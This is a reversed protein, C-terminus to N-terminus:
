VLWRVVRGVGWAVLGAVGLVGMGVGVNFCASVRRAAGRRAMTRALERRRWGRDRAPRFNGARIQSDSQRNGRDLPYNVSGYGLLTVGDNTVTVIVPGPMPATRRPPVTPVTAARSYLFGRSGRRHLVFDKTPAPYPGPFASPLPTSPQRSSLRTRPATTTRLEDPCPWELDSLNVVFAGTNIPKNLKPPHDVIEANPAFASTAPFPTTATKTKNAQGPSKLNPITAPTRNPAAM